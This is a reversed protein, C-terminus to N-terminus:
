GYLERKSPAGGPGGEYDELGSYDTEGYPRGRVRWAEESDTTWDVTIDDGRRETVLGIHPQGLWATPEGETIWYGAMHWRLAM